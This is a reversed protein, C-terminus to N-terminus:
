GYMNLTMWVEIDEQKGQRRTREDVRAGEDMRRCYKVLVAVKDLM